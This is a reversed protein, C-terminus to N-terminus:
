SNAANLETAIILKTHKRHQMNGFMEWMLPSIYTFRSIWPVAKLQRALILFYDFSKDHESNHTSDSYLWSIIRLEVSSVQEWAGEPALRLRWKLAPTVMTIKNQNGNVEFNSLFHRGSSGESSELLFM